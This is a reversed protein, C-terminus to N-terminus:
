LDDKHSFGPNNDRDPARGLSHSLGIHDAEKQVDREGEKIHIKLRIKDGKGDEIDASLREMYGLPTLSGLSEYVLKSRRDKSALAALSFMLSFKKIERSLNRLDVELHGVPDIKVNWDADRLFLAVREVSELPTGIVVKGKLRIYGASIPVPIPGSIRLPSIEIEDRKVKPMEKITMGKRLLLSRLWELGKDDTVVTVSPSMGGGPSLFLADIHGTRLYLTLLADPPQPPLFDGKEASPLPIGSIRLENESIIEDGLNRNVSIWEGEAVKLTDLDVYLSLDSKVLSRAIEPRRRAFCDGGDRYLDISRKLLGKDTSLLGLKGIFTYHFRRPFGSNVTTINCGRYRENTIGYYNKSATAQSTTIEVKGQSSVFSAMFLETRGKRYLALVSRDGAVKRLDEIKFPVGFGFEWMKLQWKMERWWERGKIYRAIPTESIERAFDSKM